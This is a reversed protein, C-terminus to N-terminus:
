STSYMEWQPHYFGMHCTHCAEARRAEGASFLHRTHCSDCKGEDRGINHCGGCGREAIEKPLKATVPIANMAVWALAHKGESFQRFQVRHCEACNIASVRRRVQKETCATPSAKVAKPAELVPIHCEECGVGIQAHKSRQWDRLAVFAVKEKQHCDICKQTEESLNLGAGVQSISVSRQVLALILWAVMVSVASVETSLKLWRM